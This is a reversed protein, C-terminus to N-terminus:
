RELAPAKAFLDQQTEGRRIIELARMLQADDGVERRKAASDGFALRTVRDGLLRDVETSASDYLPRGVEVGAKTIREFLENRWAPQVQFGAKVSDKLQFAYDYLAVYFEQSKSSVTRLFRQEILRRIIHRVTASHQTVLIAQRQHDIKATQRIHKRHRHNSTEYSFNFAIKPKHSLRKTAFVSLHRVRM